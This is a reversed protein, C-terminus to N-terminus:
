GKLEVTEQNWLQVSGDPSFYWISSEDTWWGSFDDAVAVTLSFAMVLALFLAVLKKM